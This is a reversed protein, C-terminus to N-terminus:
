MGRRAMNLAILKAEIDAVPERMFDIQIGHETGQAEGDDYYTQAMVVRCWLMRRLRREDPSTPMGDPRRTPLPVPAAFLGLTEGPHKEALADVAAGSNPETDWDDQEGDFVAGCHLLFMPEQEACSRLYAAAKEVVRQRYLSGQCKVLLQLAGALALLEDPKM